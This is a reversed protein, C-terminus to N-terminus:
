VGVLGGWICKAGNKEDVRPQYENAVARACLIALLSELMIIASALLCLILIAHSCITSCILPSFKTAKQSFLYVTPSCDNKEDGSV